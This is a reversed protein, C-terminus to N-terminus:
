FDVKEGIFKKNRIDREFEAQEKTPFWGILQSKTGYLNWGHKRRNKNQERSIFYVSDTM